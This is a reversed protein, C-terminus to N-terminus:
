GELDTGHSARERERISTIIGEIYQRAMDKCGLGIAISVGLAISGILVLLLISIISQGLGLQDVVMVSIVLYGIIRILRQVLDASRVGANSMLTLVFNSLFNVILIGIAVTIGSALITPISGFIWSWISEAARPDLQSAAEALTILMVIWYLVVGVLKSAAYRVKGKRLFEQVGIKESLVDFKMRALIKPIVIKFLRALAWGIIFILAASIASPLGQIWGWITNFLENM